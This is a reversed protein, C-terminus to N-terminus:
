LFWKRDMELLIFGVTGIFPKKYATNNYHAHSDIIMPVGGLLFPCAQHLGGLMFIMGYQSNVQGYESEGVKQMM